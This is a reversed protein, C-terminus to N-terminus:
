GGGFPCVVKGGPSIPTDGEVFGVADDHAVWPVGM